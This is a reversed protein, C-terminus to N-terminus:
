LTSITGSGERDIRDLNEDSMDVIYPTESYYEDTIRFSKLGCVDYIKMERSIYGGREFIIIIPEYLNLLDDPLDVKSRVKFIEWYVHYHIFVLGAAGFRMLKLNSLADNVIENLDKILEIYKSDIPLLKLEELELHKNVVALRRLFEEFLLVSSFKAQGSEVKISNIRSVTIDVIERDTM